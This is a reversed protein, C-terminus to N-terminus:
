AARDRTSGTRGIMGIAGITMNSWHGGGGYSAAM